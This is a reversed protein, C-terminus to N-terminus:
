FRGVKKFRLSPYRPNEKILEFNKRALSQVSELLKEFREWFQPTARHM